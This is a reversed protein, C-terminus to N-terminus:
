YLNFINLMLNNAKRYRKNIKASLKIKGQFLYGFYKQLDEQCDQQQDQYQPDQQLGAKKLIKYDPFHGAPKGFVEVGSDGDPM